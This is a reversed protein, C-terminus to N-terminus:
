CFRERLDRVQFVQKRQSSSHSGEAPDGETDLLPLRRLHVQPGEGRAGEQPGSPPLQVQQLVSLAQVQVEERRHPSGPAAGSHVESRLVQWLDSLQCNFKQQSHNKEHKRLNHSSKTRFNCNEHQCSFPLTESHCTQHALVQQVRSNQYACRPCKYPPPGPIHKTQLPVTM